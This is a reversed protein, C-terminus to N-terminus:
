PRVPRSHGETDDDGGASTADAGPGRVGHGEADTDGEASEGDAFRIPGHGETDDGEASEAESRGIRHGETDTNGEASEAEARKIRHGETDGPEMLTNDQDTMTDDGTQGPRTGTGPVVIVSPEVSTQKTESVVDTM